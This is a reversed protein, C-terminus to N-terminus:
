KRNENMYDVFSKDLNSINEDMRDCVDNYNTGSNTGYFKMKGYIVAMAYYSSIDSSVKKALNCLEPYYEKLLDIAENINNNINRIKKRYEPKNDILFLNMPDIDYVLKRYELFDDYLKNKLKITDQTPNIIVEKIKIVIKETELYINNIITESKIINNTRNDNNSVVSNDISKNVSNDINNKNNNNGSINM